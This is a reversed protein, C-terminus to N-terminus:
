EGKKKWKGDEKLYEGDRARDFNRKAARKAVLEPEVKEKEAILAYLTRRDANEEKVLDAADEDKDKAKVFDLYGESTEGVAGAQKLERIAPYREEFKKKLESESPAAWANSAALTVLAILVATITKM